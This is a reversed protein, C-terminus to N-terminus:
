TFYPKISTRAPFFDETHSDRGNAEGELYDQPKIQSLNNRLCRWADGLM